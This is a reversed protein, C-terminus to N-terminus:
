DYDVVCVSLLPDKFYGLGDLFSPIPDGGNLFVEFREVRGLPTLAVVNRKGEHGLSGTCQRTPAVNELWSVILAGSCTKRQLGSNVPRNRDHVHTVRNDHLQGVTTLKGPEFPAICFTRRHKDEV